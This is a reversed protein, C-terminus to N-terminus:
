SHVKPQFAAEGSYHLKQKFYAAYFISQEPFCTSAKSEWLRPIEDWTKPLARSTRRNGLTVKQKLAPRL